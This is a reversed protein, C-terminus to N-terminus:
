LIIPASPRPQPSKPPGQPELRILLTRSHPERACRHPGCAEGCEASKEAKSPLGATSLPADDRGFIVWLPSESFNGSRADCIM